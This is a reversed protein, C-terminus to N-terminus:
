EANGAGSNITINVNERINNLNPSNEGSSQQYVTTPPPVTSAAKIKPSNERVGAAEDEKAASRREIYPFREKEKGTKGLQDGETADTVGEDQKLVAPAVLYVLVAVAIAGTGTVLKGVKLSVTGPIAVAILGAGMALFTQFMQRQFDTPSPVFLACVLMGVFILLGLFLAVLHNKKLTM